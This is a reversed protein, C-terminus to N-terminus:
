TPPDKFIVTVETYGLSRLMSQLMARTNQEARAVLESETAAASLKREALQYLERESTPNASFVSGLRDLAGRERNAVYSRGPDVHPKALRAHPLTITASRRDESVKVAGADLRSFDVEADVTGAAVFLTREGKLFPPILRTRKEIDVLVEFNGTAAKHVSLDQISRLLVPQSRDVSRSAFPNPLSPWLRLDAVRGLAVAAVVLAVLVAVIWIWRWSGPPRPAPEPKDLRVTPSDAQRTYGEGTAQSWRPDEPDTGM